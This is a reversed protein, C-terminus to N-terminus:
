LSQPARRTIRLHPGESRDAWWAELEPFLAILQAVVEEPRYSRRGSTLYELLPKKERFWCRVYACNRPTLRGLSTCQYTQIDSAAVHTGHVDVGSIPADGFNVVFCPRHYKDWQLECVHVASGGPRRFLTFHPDTSEAKIFGQAAAFPYFRAKLAERLPSAPRAVHRDSVEDM